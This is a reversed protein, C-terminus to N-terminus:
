ATPLRPLADAAATIRRDPHQGRPGRDGARASRLVIRRGRRRSRTPGPAWRPSATSRPLRAKPLGGPEGPVHGGAWCSATTAAAVPARRSGLRAPGLWAPGSTPVGATPPCRQARARRSSWGTSPPSRDLDDLPGCVLSEADVYVATEGPASALLHRLLLPKCAERLQTGTLMAALPGFDEIPVDSPRLLTVARAGGSRRHRTSCSRSCPRRRRHEGVSTALVRARAVERRCVITAIQMRPCRLSGPVVPRPAATNIAVPLRSRAIPETV